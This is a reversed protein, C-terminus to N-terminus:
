DTQALKASYIHWTRDDASAGDVLSRRLVYTGKFHQVTQNKTTATLTVPVRVYQSGAAGEIQSPESINVQTSTTEAFGNKFAEFTQHSASGNDQWARYAQAYDRRDLADYYGQIVAVANDSESRTDQAVAKLPSVTVASPQAPTPTLSPTPATTAQLSPAPSSQLDPNQASSCGSVWGLALVSITLFHSTKM